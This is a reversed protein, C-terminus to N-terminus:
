LDATNRVIGRLGGLVHGSSYKGSAVSLLTGSYFIVPLKFGHGVFRKVFLMKLDNKLDYVSATSM